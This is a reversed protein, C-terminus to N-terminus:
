LLASNMFGAGIVFHKFVDSKRYNCEKLHKVCLVCDHADLKLTQGTVVICAENDAVFDLL